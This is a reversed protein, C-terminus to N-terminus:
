GARVAYRDRLAAAHAILWPPNHPESWEDWLRDYPMAVFRIAPDNVRRSPLGGV